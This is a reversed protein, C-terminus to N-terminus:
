GAECSNLGDIRLWARERERRSMKNENSASAGHVDVNNIMHDDADAGDQEEDRSKKAM